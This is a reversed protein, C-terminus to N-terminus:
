GGVQQPYQYLVVTFNAENKWIRKNVSQENISMENRQLTKLHYLTNKFFFFSGIQPYGAGFGPIIRVTFHYGVAKVVM